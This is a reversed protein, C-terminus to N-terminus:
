VKYPGHFVVVHYTDAHSGPGLIRCPKWEGSKTKFEPQEGPGYVEAPQAAKKKKEEQEALFQRLRDSM